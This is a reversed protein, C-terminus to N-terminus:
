KRAFNSSLFAKKAWQFRNKPELSMETIEQMKGTVTIAVGVFPAFEDHLDSSTACHIELVLPAEKAFAFYVVHEM